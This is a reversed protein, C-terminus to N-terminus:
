FLWARAWPVAPYVRRPKQPDFKVMVKSGIELNPLSTIEVLWCTKAQVPAGDPMPLSLELDVKAIGKAEPQITEKRSLVVAESPPIHRLWVHGDDLLRERKSVSQATKRNKRYYYFGILLLPLLIIAAVIFQNM